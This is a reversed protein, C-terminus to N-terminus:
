KTRKVETRSKVKPSKKGSGKPPHVIKGTSLNYEGGRDGGIEVSKFIFSWVRGM